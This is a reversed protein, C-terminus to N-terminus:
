YKNHFTANECCYCLGHLFWCVLHTEETVM